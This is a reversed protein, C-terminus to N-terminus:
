DKAVSIDPRDITEGGVFDRDAMWLSGNSDKYPKEDTVGARIRIIPRSDVAPKDAQSATRMDCGAVLLAGLAVVFLCLSWFGSFKFM